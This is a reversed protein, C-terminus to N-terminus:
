QIVVPTGLPLAAALAALASAGLRVCGFSVAEGISEPNNTGHIAIRPDGGEFETFADSHGDLAVIWAGYASGPDSPLVDTVFFPGTPTPSSPGGIAVPATLQVVGGKTWVLMRSTLDVTVQDDDAALAVDGAHIWGTSGNPRTPLLVKLWDGGRQVVPLVRPNGFETTAALAMAPQADGPLDYVLLVKATVRGVLVPPSAPPPPPLSDSTAITSPLPPPLPAAASDATADPTAAPPATTPLVLVPMTTTAAATTSLAPRPSPVSAPHRLEVVRVQATGPEARPGAVQVVAGALVAVATVAHLALRARM